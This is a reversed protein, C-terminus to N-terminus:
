CPNKGSSDRRDQICSISYTRGSEAGSGRISHRKRCFPDNYEQISQIAVGAERLKKRLETDQAVTLGRYDVVVATEAGDFLEKIEDVVPQKLEVKAM